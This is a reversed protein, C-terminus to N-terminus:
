KAFQVKKQYTNLDHIMMSVFNINKLSANRLVNLCKQRNQINKKQSSCMTAHMVTSLDEQHTSAQPVEIENRVNKTAVSTPKTKNVPTSSTNKNGTPNNQV